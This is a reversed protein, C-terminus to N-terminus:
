GVPLAEPIVAATFSDNRGGSADCGGVYHVGALPPRVIVGTDVAAGLLLRDIFTSLDDRWRCLYEAGFREPDELLAQEIIQRDFSPNFDTTTGMVALTSSNDKGHCAKIKQYLLGNRKHVSSIALLMSGPVRALGPALANYLEVDPNAYSEDRFFACEDLIACAISRGRVSRFNNAAVEITTGNRLEITSPGVNSVLSALAPISEFYGAIYRFAINAQAKDVAVCLIFAREGPRLKGRPDFTIGIYAALFSAISDKGAGRGAAVVLERVRETPPQRAAV